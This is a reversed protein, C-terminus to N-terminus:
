LLGALGKVLELVGLFLFEFILIDRNHRILWVRMREIDSESKRPAIIRYSLPVWLGLTGVLTFIIVVLIGETTSVKALLIDLVATVTLIVNNLFLIGGFLLASKPTVDDLYQVWKPMKMGESGKPLKWWCLLALLLFVGAAALQAAYTLSSATTSKQSYDKGAAVVVFIIGVAMSGLVSPLVFALTNAIARRTSLLLIVISVILPSFAWFLAIPLIKLILDGM